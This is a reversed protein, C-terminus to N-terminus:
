SPILIGNRYLARLSLFVDAISRTFGMILSDYKEDNFM